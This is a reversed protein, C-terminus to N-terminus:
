NCWFHAYESLLQIWQIFALSIEMKIHNLVICLLKFDQQALKWLGDLICLWQQYKLNLRRIVGHKEKTRRLDASKTYVNLCLGWFAQKTVGRYKSISKDSSLGCKSRGGKKPCLVGITSVWASNDLSFLSQCISCAYFMQETDKQEFASAINTKGIQCTFPAIVRFGGIIKWM